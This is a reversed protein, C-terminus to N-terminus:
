NLSHLQFYNSILLSKLCPLDIYNCVDLIDVTMLCLLNIYNCVDLTDVTM